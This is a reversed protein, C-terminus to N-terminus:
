EDDEDKDDEGRDEKKMCRKASIEFEDKEYLLMFWDSLSRKAGGFSIIIIFFDFLFFLDFSFFCFCFTFIAKSKKNNQIFM